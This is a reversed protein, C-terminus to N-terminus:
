AALQLQDEVVHHSVRVGVAQRDRHDQLLQEDPDEGRQWLSM